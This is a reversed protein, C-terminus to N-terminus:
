EKESLNNVLDASCSIPCQKIVYQGAEIMNRELLERAYEAKEEIAEIELEDHVTLVLRVDHNLTPGYGDNFLEDFINAIAFKQIDGSTGQIALNALAPVGPYEDWIRRRNFPPLTRAALINKDYFREHYEVLKPYASFYKNRNDEAEKQTMTVGYTTKAYTKFKKSGMAYNYGLRVAKANQRLKKFEKKPKDDGDPNVDVLTEYPLGNVFAATSAYPDKQEFFEQLMNEDGCVEAMVRLEIQSYDALAFKYGDEAVFCSRINLDSGDPRPLQNLNPGTSSSRGTSVIQNFTTHLRKTKENVLHPLNYIYSSLLKSAKRHELLAVLIDYDAVELLKIVDSGTSTIIKDQAKEENSKPDYIPNPIQLQRLVKLVQTSSTIDIGDDIVEGYINRREHRDPVHKLFEKRAEELKAEYIPRVLALREVDLKIGFWEMMAFGFLARMELNFANTLDTEELWVTLKKALPKLVFTDKAAYKIQSESLIPTSWDSKQESKDLMLGLYRECIDDLGFNLPPGCEYVKSALMTDFVIQGYFEIGLSWFFKLDFKWNQAVFCKKGKVKELLKSILAKFAPIGLEFVDFVYAVGDACFQALRITNIHCDLGTTETDVGIYYDEVNLLAKIADIADFIKNGESDLETTKYKTIYKIKM